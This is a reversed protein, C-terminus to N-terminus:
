VLKTFWDFFGTSALRYYYLQYDTDVEAGGISLSSIPYRLPDYDTRIAGEILFVIVFLPCAIAGCALLAKTKTNINL